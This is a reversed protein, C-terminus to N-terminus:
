RDFFQPHVDMVWSRDPLKLSGGPAHGFSIGTTSGSAQQFDRNIPPPTPATPSLGGAVRNANRM